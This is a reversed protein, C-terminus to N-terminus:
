IELVGQQDKQERPEMLEEKVRRVKQVMKPWKPSQCSLLNDRKAMQVKIAVCVLIGMLELLVM